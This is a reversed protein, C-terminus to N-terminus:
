SILCAPISKPDLELCCRLSGYRAETLRFAPIQHSFIFLEIWPIAMIFDRGAETKAQFVTKFGTVQELVLVIVWRDDYVERVEVVDYKCKKLDSCKWDFKFNRYLAWVEGKKPYIEYMNEKNASVGTLVHSFAATDSFVGTKEAIFTGCSMPMKKNHIVGRPPTFAELWKVEMRFDPSLEICDIQAYHKPLDDLESYLAWTQGAQFNDQSKDDEFSYFEAEPVGCLDMSSQPSTQKAVTVGDPSMDMADGQFNSAECSNVGDAVGSTRGLSLATCEESAKESCVNVLGNGGKSNGVDLTDKEEFDKRKKSRPKKIAGSKLSGNIMSNLTKVNGRVNAPDSIGVRKRHLTAPDLEFYGEPIDKCENGYTKYSPVRHSFRLLENSLIHFCNMVNHKFLSEFGKIKDLYAVWLGSEKTYDSLIEVLEYEYDRNRDLDSNWNINWNKFIAWTEGRRPYIKYTGGVAGNECIIRHSFAHIDEVTDINKYKFTGCAIPLGSKSWHIEVQEDSTFELRVVLVKFGPSFVKKIRVYCRPMGNIDDYMAWMQDAAFCAESRKADFDFFRMPGDGVVPLRGAYVSPRAPMASSGCAKTSPQSLNKADGCAKTSPQSLVTASGCAKTSSQSLTVADGSTRTSTQSLMALTAFAKTSAQSLMAAGGSAKTSAVSGGNGQVTERCALSEDQRFGDTKASLPRNIGGPPPVGLANMDYAIFPKLCGQCRLVRMMVDKNFQYKINCIPCCTWFKNLANPLAQELQQQQKQQNAEMSQQLQQQQKQQNAEMSQQQQQQQQQNAEM